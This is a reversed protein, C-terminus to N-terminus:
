PARYWTAPPTLVWVVARTVLHPLWAAAVMLAWVTVGQAITSLVTGPVSEAEVVCAIFTSLM